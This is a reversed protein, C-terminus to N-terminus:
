RAANQEAICDDTLFSSCQFDPALAVLASHFTTLVRKITVEQENPTFAWCVPVGHYHDNMVLITLFSFKYRAIGFTTDMFFPRKNGWRIARHLMDRTSIVLFCRASPQGDQADNAVLEFDLFRRDCEPQAQDEKVQLNM